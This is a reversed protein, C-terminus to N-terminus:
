RFKKVSSLQLIIILILIGILTSIIGNIYNVNFNGIDFALQNSVTKVGNFYTTPLYPAIKSLPAIVMTALNMGVLILIGVFLTSLQAKFIKAILQMMLVIFCSSLFTLILAPSFLNKIQTYYGSHENTFIFYPYNLSGTGFILSAGIFALLNVLLFIGVILAIGTITNLFMKKYNSLPILSEIDLKNRYPSTYLQTLVFVAVLTFLIPFYLENLDVIFSYGKSPPDEQYPLPHKKLYSFLSLNKLLYFKENKTASNDELTYKDAKALNSYKIKYVNKWNKNKLAQILNKTKSIESKFSSIDEQTIKYRESNKSLTKLDKKSEKLSKEQLELNGYAENELSLKTSANKNMFLIAFSLVILLGVIIIALNSKTVKKSQFKIYDM